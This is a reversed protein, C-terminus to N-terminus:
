IVEKLVKLFAENEERTGVSVRLHNELVGGSFYRIMIGDELLRDFVAKADKVKFMIFNAGTKYVKINSLKLMEANLWDREAKIIKINEMIVDSNKMLESAIIQSVSNLNYPPKVAAIKEVIEDSSLLYGTRIGAAGFAKSFTRLVILRDYKSLMDVVSEGGFEIYAEDVVVISDTSDLVKLIDDKPILNGTPNNPNCLIIVKAGFDNSVAILKDIEIDFEEDTPIEMYRGGLVKTNIGYMSFTPEHSVVVEDQGVFTNLLVHIMEDSGNGVVINKYDVKIFESISKRLKMSNTDPYRNIDTALLRSVISQMIEPEINFPSENADMKYKYDYDHPVYPKLSKVEEKLYKEIM